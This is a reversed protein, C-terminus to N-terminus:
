TSGCGSRPSGRKFAELGKGPSRQRRNKGETKNKGKGKADKGKYGTREERVGTKGKGQPAPSQYSGGAFARAEQNREKQIIAMEQRSPLINVESPIVELRQSVQFNTGNAQLELGKIRQLSIDLAQSIKGELLADIVSCHTLLERAMAGSIRRSLVQRYYRVLQPPWQKSGLSSDGMDSAVIKGIGRFAESALLGPYRESVGRIKLEDGFLNTQEMRLPLDRSDESSCSGSSSSKKKRMFKQARRFIKKRVRSSLDLATGKFMRRQSVQGEGTDSSSSFSSRKSARERAPRGEKEKERRGGASAASTDRSKRRKKRRDKKDRSSSCSRKKKKKKSRRERSRKEEKEKERLAEGRDPSHKREQERADAGRAELQHYRSRLGANQDGPVVPMVEVLNTAWGVSELEQHSVKRTRTVHVLRSNELERKCESPCLHWRCPGEGQSAWQLLGDITTGMLKINLMRRGDEAKEEIVEGAVMGPHGYYHAEEGIVLTGGEFLDPHPNEVGQAAPRRMVAPGRGRARREGSPAGAKAKAAAPRMMRKPAM